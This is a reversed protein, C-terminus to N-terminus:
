NGPSLQFSEVYTRKDKLYDMLFVEGVANLQAGIFLAATVPGAYFFRLSLRERPSDPDDGKYRDRAWNRQERVVANRVATAMAYAQDGDGIADSGLEPTALDLVICSRGNEATWVNADATVDQAASIRVQLEVPKDGEIRVEDRLLRHPNVTKQSTRKWREKEGTRQNLQLSVLSIGTVAHFVSGVYMAAAPTCRLDLELESPQRQNIRRRLRQLEEHYQSGWKKRKQESADADFFLEGEQPSEYSKVTLPEKLAKEDLSKDRKYERTYRSSEDEIWREIIPEIDKREENLPTADSEEKRLAVIKEFLRSVLNALHAQSRGRMREVLQNIVAKDEIRKPRSKEDIDYCLAEVTPELLWDISTRHGDVPWLSFEGRHWEQTAALKELRERQHKNGEVIALVVPRQLECDWATQSVGRGLKRLEDGFLDGGEKDFTKALREVEVLILASTALIRKPRCTEFWPITENPHESDLEWLEASTNSATESPKSNSM